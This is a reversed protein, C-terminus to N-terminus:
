RSNAIDCQHAIKLQEALYAQKAALSLADNLRDDRIAEHAQNCSEIRGSTELGKATEFYHIVGGCVTVLAGGAFLWETVSRRFWSRRRPVPQRDPKLTEMACKFLTEPKDDLRKL